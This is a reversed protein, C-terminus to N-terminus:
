SGFFLRTDKGHIYPFRECVWSDRRAIKLLNKVNRRIKEVRDFLQEKLDDPM